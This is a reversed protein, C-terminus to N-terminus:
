EVRSRPGAPELEAIIRRVDAKASRSVFL